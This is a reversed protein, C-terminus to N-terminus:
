NVWKEKANILTGFDPREITSFTCNSFVATNNFEFEWNLFCTRDLAFAFMQPALAVLYDLKWEDFVYEATNNTPNDPSIIPVSSGDFGHYLELNNATAFDKLQGIHEFCNDLIVSLAGCYIFLGHILLIPPKFSPGM